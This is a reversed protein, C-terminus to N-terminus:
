SSGNVRRVMTNESVDWNPVQEFSARVPQEHAWTSQILFLRSKTRLAHEHDNANRKQELGISIPM